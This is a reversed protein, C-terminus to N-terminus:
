HAGECAALKEDHWPDAQIIRQLVWMRASRILKVALLRCPRAVVVTRPLLVTAAAFALSAAFSPHGTHCSWSIM